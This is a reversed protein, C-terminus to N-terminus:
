FVQPAGYTVVQTFFNEGGSQDFDPISKELESESVIAGEALGGFQQYINRQAQDFVRGFATSDPPPVRIVEPHIVTQM